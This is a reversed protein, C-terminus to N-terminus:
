ETHMDLRMTNYNTRLMIPYEESEDNDDDTDNNNNNSNNNHNDRVVDVIELADRYPRKWLIARKL